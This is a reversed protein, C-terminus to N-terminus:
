PVQLLFFRQPEAANISNTFSFHGNADFTNTAIPSWTALPLAVNTSSLVYYTANAPGNTGSFIGSGAQLSFSVIHPRSNGGAALVLLQLTGFGGLSDGRVIAATDSAVTDATALGNPSIGLIPGSTVSWVVQTAALPLVTADDLLATASLQTNAGSPLSTSSASLVITTAEYLQGIYGIRATEVPGSHTALGGITGASDFNTYNLSSTPQGGADLVDATISYNASSRQAASAPLALSLLLLALRANM